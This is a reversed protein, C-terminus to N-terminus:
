RVDRLRRIREQMPPHTAFLGMLGGSFPRVIFMHATTPSAEVPVRQSAHELKQLASMLGHPHGVIRAGTADAKYERTRSVAMQIVVAALPAVIMMALAGLAGGGDRDRGGGFMAAYGVMRAMMTIAGAMTAAISSVLIDRNKVHALEHALVGELEQEDLLQLLGATIAVASHQPNRGTAFANAGSSPLVYVAPKPLEARAALREVVSHLAAFQSADAPQARYMKLVIKDSFWYSGFNFVVALGMAIILGQNGFFSGIAMLLGTMVGLLATTKLANM